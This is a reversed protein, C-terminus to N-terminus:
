GFFDTANLVLSQKYENECSVCKIELPKIESAQRLNITTTRLAEFTQKDCNKLFDLIYNKETVFASPSVIHEIAETVFGMSLETLKQMAETTKVQRASDDEISELSNMAAQIEFQSTNIQNIQKYSLPKFKFKLENITIEEDYNGSKLSTLLGTLNIGYKSETECAPCMSDIDMNNGNTAARIAILIPDLDIQPIEWPNKINPVCSKIIEVIASGNFLMDPTKSTIEDIATMPYVPLEKNDPLDISGTSYFKGESPLRMFIAPRRFYQKLPNTM